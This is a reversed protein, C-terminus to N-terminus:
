VPRRAATAVLCPLSRSSARGNRTASPRATQAGGPRSVSVNPVKVPSTARTPVGSSTARRLAWNPNATDPKERALGPVASFDSDTTLVTLGYRLAVAAALADITALQRGARRLTV